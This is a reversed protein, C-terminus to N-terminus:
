HCKKAKVVLELHSTVTAHLGVVEKDLASWSALLANNLAAVSSYYEAPVDNELVSWIVIDKPDFNPSSLPWINKDWVGSFYDKCWQQSM